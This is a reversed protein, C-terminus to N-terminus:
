KFQYWWMIEHIRDRMQLAILGVDSEAGNFKITNQVMLELDATFADISDYEDNNLAGHITRLDRADKRPIIEYYQPIGLLVPDVPELFLWSIEEDILKQLIGHLGRKQNVSLKPEM